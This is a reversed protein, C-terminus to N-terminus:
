NIAPSHLLILSRTGASPAYVIEVPGQPLRAVWEVGARAEGWVEVPAADRAARGQEM